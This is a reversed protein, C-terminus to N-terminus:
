AHLRLYKEFIEQQDIHLNHGADKIIKIRSNEYRSYYNFADIYGVDNDYLALLLVIFKESKYESLEKDFTFAYSNNRFFELNANNIKCLKIGSDIENIYRQYNSNNIIYNM